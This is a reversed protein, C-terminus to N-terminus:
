ECVLKEFEKSEKYKRVNVVLCTAITSPTNELTKYTIKNGFYKELSKKIDLDACEDANYQIAITSAKNSSIDLDININKNVDGVKLEIQTHKCFDFDRKGTDQGDRFWDNYNLSIRIFQKFIQELQENEEIVYKENLTCKTNAGEQQNLKIGTFSYETAKKVYLESIQKRGM